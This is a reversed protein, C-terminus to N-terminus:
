GTGACVQFPSCLDKAMKCYMIFLRREGGSVYLMMKIIEQACFLERFGRKFRFPFVETGGLEFPDIPDIITYGVHERCAWWFQAEDPQSDPDPFSHKENFELVSTDDMVNQQRFSHIAIRRLLRLIGMRKNATKNHRPDTHGASMALQADLVRHLRGHYGLSVSGSTSPAADWEEEDSSSDVDQESEEEKMLETQWQKQTKTLRMENTEETIESQVLVESGTIDFRNKFTQKLKVLSRRRRAQTTLDFKKGNCGEEGLTYM